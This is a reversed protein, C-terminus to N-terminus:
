FSRPKAMQMPSLTRTGMIRHDLLATGDEGNAAAAVDHARM